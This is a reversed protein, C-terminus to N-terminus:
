VKFLKRDAHATMNIYRRVCPAGLRPTVGHLSHRTNLFLVLTNAQYPVTEVAEVTSMDVERVGHFTPEKVTKFIQLDGGTSSDEPKRMYFLGAWLERGNDLHATRVTEEQMGNLVFQIEMQM